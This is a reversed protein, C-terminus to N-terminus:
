VKAFELEGQGKIKEVNQEEDSVLKIKFLSDGELWDIRAMLQAKDFYIHYDDDEYPDDLSIDIYKQDDINGSRIDNM